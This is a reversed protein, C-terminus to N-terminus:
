ATRTAELYYVGNEVTSRTVLRFNKITKKIMPAKAVVVRQLKIHSDRDGTRIRIGSGVSLESLLKVLPNSDIASQRVIPRPPGQITEYEDIEDLVHTM